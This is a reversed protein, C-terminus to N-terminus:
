ASPWTPINPGWRGNGEQWFSHMSPRPTRTNAQKTLMVAENNLAALLEPHDPRLSKALIEKAQAFLNEAESYDGQRTKVAALNTLSASAAMSEPGALQQRTALVQRHLAEAEAYRASANILVGLNSLRSASQLPNSEHSKPAAEIAIRYLADAEAIRGLKHLCRAYNNTTGAVNPEYGPFQKLYEVANRHLPEAEAHKGADDLVTALNSAAMAAEPSRAEGFQEYLGLERRRLREAHRFKGQARLLEAFEGLTLARLKWHRSLRRSLLWAKHLLRRADAPRNELRAKSAVLFFKLWRRPWYGQLFDRGVSYLFALLFVALILLILQALFQQSPM